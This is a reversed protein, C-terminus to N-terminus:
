GGGQLKKVYETFLEAPDIEVKQLVTEGSSPSDVVPKENKAVLAELEKVRNELREVEENKQVQKENTEKNENPKDETNPKQKEEKQTEEKEEEKAPEEPKTEEESEPEKEVGEEEFDANKPYKEPYKEKKKKKMEEPYPYEEEKKKKKKMEAEAEPYKKLKKYAKAADEMTAKPYKKKYKKYFESFSPLKALELLEETSVEYEMEIDRKFSDFDERLKEVKEAIGQLVDMIKEDQEMNDGGKQTLANNIYNTTMAPQVVIAFNRFSFDKLVHSDHTVALSPSIGFKAGYALKIATAPDVIVLDGYIMGTNSDFTVSKPDVEGVWDTTRTDQHDLYLSRIEKAEWDTKDFARKILNANIYYGNWVGPAILPKKKIIFPLKIKSLDMPRENQALQLTIMDEM